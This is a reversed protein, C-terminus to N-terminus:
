PTEGYKGIATPSVQSNSRRCLMRCTLCEGPFDNSTERFPWSPRVEELTEAVLPYGFEVLIDIYSAFPYTVLPIGLSAFYALRSTPKYCVAPFM